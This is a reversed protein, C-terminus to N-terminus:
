FLHEYHLMPHGTLKSFDLGDLLWRLQAASMEFVGSEISPFCFRGKELRKYWLCFGNRDWYLIKIKDGRHNRFVFLYESLPNKGFTDAVLISLGNILRRMDVSFRSMLIQCREPLFM